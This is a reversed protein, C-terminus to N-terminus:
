RRRLCTHGCWERGGHYSLKSKALLAIERLVRISISDKVPRVRVLKHDRTPQWAVHIHERSAVDDTWTACDIVVAGEYERDDLCHNILLRGCLM